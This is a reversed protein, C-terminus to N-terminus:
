IIGILAINRGSEDKDVRYSHLYKSNCVTCIESDVINNEELGVEKLLLRNILTTDIYFKGAEKNSKKIIDDNNNLYTFTNEFISKVDEKVEFHCQKICPGFCAIIDEPKSNYEEIMKLVAKQGIKQVTGKWGSHINGIVRKVPDYLLIPTCDAYSLMLNIKNKNTLFGDVDVYKKDADDVKEVRDTHSQHPRVIENANINFEKCITKMSRELKNRDVKTGNKNFDIDNIRLTYCNIIEKYQLLRRFQLYEIEEKKIHLVNDNSLDSM